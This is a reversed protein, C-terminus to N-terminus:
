QVDEQERRKREALDRLAQMQKPSSTPIPEKEGTKPNVRTKIRGESDREYITKYPDSEM